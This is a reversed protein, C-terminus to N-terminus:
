DRPQFCTILTIHCANNVGPGNIDGLQNWDFGLGCVSQACARSPADIVTYYYPIDLPISDTNTWNQQAELRLFENVAATYNDRLLREWELIQGYSVIAQLNSPLADRFYAETTTADVTEPVWFTVNFEHGPMAGVDNYHSLDFWSQLFARVHTCNSGFDLSSLDPPSWEPFSITLYTTM